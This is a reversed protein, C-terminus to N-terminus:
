LITSIPAVEHVDQLAPDIVLVPVLVPAEVQVGHAAPFYEVAEFTADQLLQPAPFYEVAIPADDELVQM